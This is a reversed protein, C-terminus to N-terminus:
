YYRTSKLFDITIIFRYKASVAHRLLILLPLQYQARRMYPIPGWAGAFSAMDTVVTLITKLARRSATLMELPRLLFHSM